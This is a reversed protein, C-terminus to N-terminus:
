HVLFASQAEPTQSLVMSVPFRQTVPVKGPPAQVDFRSQALVKAHSAPWHAQKGTPRPQELPECHQEPEHGM